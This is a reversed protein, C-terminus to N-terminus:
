EEMGSESSPPQTTPSLGTFYTRVKEDANTALLLYGKLRCKSCGTGGCHWCTSKYYSM